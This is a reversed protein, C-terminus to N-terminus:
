VSHSLSADLSPVGTLAMVGTGSGWLPQASPAGRPCAGDERGLHIWPSMGAGRLNFPTKKDQRSSAEGLSGGLHPAQLFFRGRLCLPAPQLLKLGAQRCAPRGGKLSRPLSDSVRVWGENKIRVLSERLIRHDGCELPELIRNETAIGEKLDEEGHFFFSLSPLRWPSRSV